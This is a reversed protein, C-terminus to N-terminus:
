GGELAGDRQGDVGQAPEPQGRGGCAARPEGCRAAAGLVLDDARRSAPHILEGRQTAGCAVRQKQIASALRHPLQRQIKGGRSQVQEHDVGPCRVPDDIALVGLAPAAGLKGCRCQADSRQAVGRWM